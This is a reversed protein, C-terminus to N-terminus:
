RKDPNVSGNQENIKAEMLERQAKEAAASAKAAKLELERLDVKYMKETNIGSGSADSSMEIPTASEFKQAESLPVASTVSGYSTPYYTLTLRANYVYATGDSSSRDANMYYTHTGSSTVPYIQEFYMSHWHYSTSSPEGSSGIVCWPSPATTSATEIGIRINGKTAGGLTGFGSARAVIYGSGPVTISASTVNTVGTTAIAGGADYTGAIGPEDFMEDSSISSDPLTVSGNGAVSMNFSTSRNTGFLQVLPNNTNNYNGTVKFGYYTGLDRTVGFTGGGNSNEPGRILTSYGGDSNYLYLRGGYSNYYGFDLTPNALGNQHITLRGNQTPSGLILTDLKEINMLGVRATDAWISNFSYGVATLPIRTTLEPDAAVQIGL